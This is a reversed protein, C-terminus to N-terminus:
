WIRRSSTGGADTWSTPVLFLGGTQCFRFSGASGHRPPSTLQKNLLVPVFPLSVYKCTAVLELLVEVLREKAKSRPRRFLREVEDLGMEQKIVPFTSRLLRHLVALVCM